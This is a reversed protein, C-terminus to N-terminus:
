AQGKSNERGTTLWIYGLEDIRAIFERGGKSKGKGTLMFVERRRKESQEFASAWQVGETPLDIVTRLIRELKRANYDSRKLSDAFDLVPAQLEPIRDVVELLDVTVNALELLGEETKYVGQFDLPIARNPGTYLRSQLLSFPPTGERSLELYSEVPGLTYGYRERLDPHLFDETIARVFRQHEPTLPGREPSVPRLTPSKPRADPRPACAAMGMMSLGIGILARRRSISTAQQPHPMRREIM